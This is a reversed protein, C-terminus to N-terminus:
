AEQGYDRIVIRAAGERSLNHPAEMLTAMRACRSAAGWYREAEVADGLRQATQSLSRAEERYESATQPSRM